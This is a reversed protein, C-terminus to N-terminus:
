GWCVGVGPCCLRTVTAVAHETNEALIEVVLVSMSLTCTQGAPVSSAQQEETGSLTPM